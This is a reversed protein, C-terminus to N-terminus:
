FGIDFTLVRVQLGAYLADYGFLYGLEARAGIGHNAAGCCLALRTNPVHRYQAEPDNWFGVVAEAYVEPVMGGIRWAPKRASLLNFGVHMPGVMEIVPDGEDMSKPRGVGDLCSLGVRGRGLVCTVTGLRGSYAGKADRTEFLGGVALGELRVFRSPREGPRPPGGLFGGASAPGALMCVGLAVLVLRRM